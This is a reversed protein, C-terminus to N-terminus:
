KIIFYFKTGKNTKSEVGYEFNHSELISKVISLGIGTGVLNRKHKKKSHYYKDWIFPLDEKKIGKGTDIIEVKVSENNIVNIIIKNDKGTYNIANNILNYIVQEMKKKDAVIKLSEPINLEFTYGELEKYIEYRKIINKILICLDFEEKVVKDKNSQMKSLTLIDEVLLNLRDTEEIITNLHEERKSNDKYSVDKVMEAYGKIMTLPTKLDHSVNALLEKRLEDTQELESKAYNLTQALEDLEYIKSDNDFTFNYNGNALKKAKENMDEIPKSIRKSIFYGIIFALVIVGISVMVLQKSLIGITNDLPELSANVFVVTENDIKAAYILTKNNFRPNTIIYKHKTYNNSYFNNIYENSNAICGKTYNNSSYITKRSKIIEICVDKDFSLKDLDTKEITYLNAIKNATDKIQISKSYEYFVDIFIVQFAWLTLMLIIAFIVLYSWVSVKLSNHLKNLKL